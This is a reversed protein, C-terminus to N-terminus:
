RVTLQIDGLTVLDGPKVKKGRQTCIEGNVSVDGKLIIAKADGGTEAIGEFKLLGELKIFATSIKVDKQQMFIM